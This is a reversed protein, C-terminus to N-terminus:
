FREFDGLSATVAVAHASFNIKASSFAVVPRVLPMALLDSHLVVRRTNNRLLDTYSFPTSMSTMFHTHTYCGAIIMRVKM